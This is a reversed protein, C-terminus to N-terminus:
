ACAFKEFDVPEFTAIEFISLNLQVQVLSLGPIEIWPNVIRNPESKIDFKM